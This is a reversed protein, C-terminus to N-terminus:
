CIKPFFGLLLYVRWSFIGGFDTTRLRRLDQLARWEHKFNICVVHNTDSALGQDQSFSPNCHVIIYTHIIYYFFLIIFSYYLLFIIYYFFLIISSYYLLFIIYYFFLIIFSSYLLLIIYYFFLIILFQDTQNAYLSIFINELMNKIIINIISLAM